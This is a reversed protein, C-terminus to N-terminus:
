YVGAYKRGKAQSANQKQKLTYILFGNGKPAMAIDNSKIMEEIIDPLGAYSEINLATHGCTRDLSFATAIEVPYAVGFEEIFTRVNAITLTERGDEIPKVNEYSLQAICHALTEYTTFGRVMMEEDAYVLKYTPFSHVDYENCLEKNASYIRKTEPGAFVESYKQQNFGVLASMAVINDTDNMQAGDVLTMEQLIRLFRQVANDVVEKNSKAYLGAAIYALNMPVTSRHEETFLRVPAESVPMGHIASAELWHKHMNRNSMAIDGGISLRRNNFYTIDEIMGGMVYEFELQSGYRYRLARVVPVSGWCWTCAPDAFVYIKVKKM